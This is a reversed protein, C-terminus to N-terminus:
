QQQKAAAVKLFLSCSIILLTIIATRNHQRYLKHLLIICLPHLKTKLPKSFPFHDTFNTATPSKPGREYFMYM